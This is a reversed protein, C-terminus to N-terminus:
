QVHVIIIIMIMNYSWAGCTYESFNGMSCIIMNMFRYSQQLHQLNSRYSWKGYM